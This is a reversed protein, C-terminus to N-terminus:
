EAKVAKVLPESDDSNWVMIMAGAEFPGSVTVPKAESDVAIKQMVVAKLRGNEYQAVYANVTKGSLNKITFEVGGDKVAAGIVSPTDDPSDTPSTTESPESGNKTEINVDDIYINGSNNEASGWFVPFSASNDKLVETGNVSISRDYTGGNNKIVVKVESWSAGDATIGLSTEGQSTFSDGIYLNNTSDAKAQLTLESSAGDIIVPTTFQVRPGRSGSAYKGDALVLAQSGNVGVGAAIAAYVTNGDGKDRTGVNVTMGDIDTYPEQDVTGMVRLNGPIQEEFDLKINPAATPVPTQPPTPAPTGIVADGVKFSCNDAMSGTTMVLKNGVVTLYYGPKSLSEFSIMAENKNLAKRTVFTMAEAQKGDADQTLVADTGEAKIYLGPKNLAQISVYTSDDKNAKGAVVEWQTDTGNEEGATINKVIPYSNDDLPNDFHEHGIFKGDYSTITTSTGAIGTSLEEMTSISGDANFVVEQINPSRRFGSGHPLAGNHYIFYTKGNFDFVAGHSTNATANATMMLNGYDWSGSMINDTTAYAWQERWDKAFFLYYKGTYKGNEDTRRYLYPAETYVGDLNNFTSHVIDASTIQNDGNIDKVSIMDDNLECTYNEGNGWNLYIHEIGNEDTEIWGTPDIDNWGSTNETTMTYGNIMPTTSVNAYPGEPKDSVAVGICQYGNYTSNGWTCYYLYYKGNHKLVQSAWASTDGSAWPVTSRNVRFPVGHYEWNVLDKSSYCLYEPINYSEDSAVDHGVFLYVTDGDVLVSPDGGYATNGKADFGAIPNGGASKTINVPDTAETAKPSLDTACQNMKKAFQTVNNNDVGTMVLAKEGGNEDEDFGTLVFMEMTDGAKYYENNDSDGDATFSLTVTHDGDFTWIGKNGGITGDAQLVVESSYVPADAGRYAASQDVSTCGDLITHGVSCLNWTGYVMEQPLKQETEGSYVLPSVVPWGSSTWLMKRVQLYAAADQVKRSHQVYYWNGDDDQMVSNHGNGYYTIGGLNYSGILKYGWPKSKDSQETYTTGVKHNEADVFVTHPSSSGIINSMATDTRALRSNYNTGLWGYSTLMYTYGNDKNKFTFAGEPGMVGNPTSFLRSGFNQVSSLLTEDSTYDVGEVRGDETLKAGHIGKWFSGWIFYTQGNETYINADIANTNYNNNYEKSAMVVGCEKTEGDWLGPSKAKVLSIVSNRAGGDAGEDAIGDGNEDLYCSTSLYFWYPYEDDPKYILDPAWYTKNATAAADKKDKNKLEMHKEIFEKADSPVTVTKTYDHKIWNILDTSEFVLNHSSYAFYKGSAPDKFITPDHAGFTPDEPESYVTKTPFSADSATLYGADYSNGNSDTAKIVVSGSSITPLELTYSASAGSKVAIPETQNVDVSGDETCVTFTFATDNITYNTLKINANAGPESKFIKKGSADVFQTDIFYRNYQAINAANHYNVADAALATIEDTTLARGYVRFDDMKGSFGEGTDGWNAHGIWTSADSTFLSKIDVAANDSETLSGNVYVQTGNATFVATVYQWDDYLGATTVSSLRTGTNNYREATFGSSSALMGIYKEYLFEQKDAVPTTFFAWRSSPKIWFSFTAAEQGDLLGKPLELYNGAADNKISLAKSKGDWSNDYAIEGHETVTGGKSAAFSGTGTGSEDFTLNLLYDEPIATDGAYVPVVANAALMSLVAFGSVVKKFKNM